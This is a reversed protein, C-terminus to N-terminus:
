ISYVNDVAGVQRPTTQCMDYKRIIMRCRGYPMGCSDRKRKRRHDNQDVSSSPLGGLPQNM